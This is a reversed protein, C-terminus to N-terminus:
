TESPQIRPVNIHLTLGDFHARTAKLDADPGFKIKREFRQDVGEEIENKTEATIKLQHDRKTELIMRDLRFGPLCTRLEYRNVYQEVMLDDEEKVVTKTTTTTTTSVVRKTVSDGEQANRDKLGNNFAEVLIERSLSPDGQLVEGLPADVRDAHRIHIDHRQGDPFPTVTYHPKDDDTGEQAETVVSILGPSIAGFSAASSSMSMATSRKFKYATFDSPMCASQRFSSRQKSNGKDFASFSAHRKQLEPTSTREGSDTAQKRMPESYGAISEQDPLLPSTLSRSNQDYSYKLPAFAARAGGFSGDLDYLTNRSNDHSNGGSNSENSWRRRDGASDYDTNSSHVTNRQLIDSGVMSSSRSSLAESPIYFRDHEPLLTRWSDPSAACEIAPSLSGAAPFPTMFRPHQAEEVTQSVKTIVSSEPKEHMQLEDFLQELSSHDSTTPTVTRDTHFSTGPLRHLADPRRIKITSSRGAPSTSVPTMNMQYDNEDDMNRAAHLLQPDMSSQVVDEATSFGVAALGRIHHFADSMDVLAPSSPTLRPSVSMPGDMEPAAFASQMTSKEGNACQWSLNANMSEPTKVESGGSSEVSSMSLRPAAEFSQHDIEQFSHPSSQPALGVNNPSPQGISRITQIVKRGSKTRVLRHRTGQIGSQNSQTTGVQPITPYEASPKVLNALSAYNAAQALYQTNQDHDIAINSSRSSSAVNSPTYTGEDNKNNVTNMYPRLAEPRIPVLTSENKPQAANSSSPMSSSSSPLNSGHRAIFRRISGSPRRQPSSPNSKIPRHSSM